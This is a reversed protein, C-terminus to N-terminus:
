KDTLPGVSDQYRLRVGPRTCEIEVDLRRGVEDEELYFGIVYYASMEYDVREFLALIDNHYRFTKGGTPGSYLGLNFGQKVLDVIGVPLSAVSTGPEKFSLGRTDVGYVCVGAAQLAEIAREYDEYGGQGRVGFMGAAVLIVNVKQPMGAARHALEVLYSFYRDVMDVNRFKLSLGDVADLLVQKDSTFDIELDVYKDFCVLAVRDNPLMRKEIFERVAARTPQFFGFEYQMQHMLIVFYRPEAPAAPEYDRYGVDLGEVSAFRELAIRRPEFLRLRRERDGARIKLEGPELDVVHLGNRDQAQLTLEVLRVHEKLLQPEREQACVLPTFILAYVSIILKFPLVRVKEDPSM